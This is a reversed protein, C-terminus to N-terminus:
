RRFLGMSSGPTSSAPAPQRNRRRDAGAPTGRGGSGAGPAVRPQHGSISGGHLGLQRDDREWSDRRSGGGFDDDPSRRPSLMRLMGDGDDRAPRGDLSDSDRGAGRGEARERTHGRHDAHVGAIHGYIGMTKTTTTPSESVAELAAPKRHRRLERSEEDRGSPLGAYGSRRGSGGRVCRCGASMGHDFGDWALSNKLDPLYLKTIYRPTSPASEPDLTLWWPWVLQRFETAEASTLAFSDGSSERLRSWLTLPQCRPLETALISRAFDPPALLWNLALCYVEGMAWAVPFGMAVHGRAVALTALGAVLAACSLCVVTFELPGRFEVAPLRRQLVWFFLRFLLRRGEVRAEVFFGVLCGCCCSAVSTEALWFMSVLMSSVLLAAIVLGPGLLLGFPSQALAELSCLDLEFAPECPRHYLGCMTDCDIPAVYTGYLLPLAAVCATALLAGLFRRPLRGLRVRELVAGLGQERLVETAVELPSMALLAHLYSLMVLMIQEQEAEPLEEWEVAAEAELELRRVREVEGLLLEEEEELVRLAVDRSGGRGLAGADASGLFSEEDVRDVRRHNRDESERLSGSVVSGNNSASRPKKLSALDTRLEAIERWVDEKERHDEREHQKRNQPSDASRRLEELERRLEGFDTALENIEHRQAHLEAKAAKVEEELVAAGLYRQEAERQGLEDGAPGGLSKRRIAGNGADPTAVPPEEPPQLEVKAARARRARLLSSAAREATGVLLQRQLGKQLLHLKGHLLALAPVVPGGHRPRRRQRPRLRRRRLRRRRRRRGRGWPSRRRLQSRGLAATNHGAVVDVKHVTGRAQSGSAQIPANWQGPGARLGLPVGHLPRCCEGDQVQQARLLGRVLNLWCGQVMLERRNAAIELLSRRHLISVHHYLHIALRLVLGNWLGLRSSRFALLVGRVQVLHFPRLAICSALTTSPEGKTALSPAIVGDNEAFSAPFGTSRHHPRERALGSAELGDDRARGHQRCADAVGQASAARLHLLPAGHEEAPRRRLQGSGRSPMGQRRLCAHPLARALPGSCGDGGGSRWRRPSTCTHKTHRDPLWFKLLTEHHRTPKEAPM